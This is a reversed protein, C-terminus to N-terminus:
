SFQDPNSELRLTGAALLRKLYSSLKTILLIQFSGLKASIGRQKKM